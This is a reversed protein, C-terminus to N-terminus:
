IGSCDPLEGTAIVIYARYPIGRVTLLALTLLSGISIVWLRGDTLAASSPGPTYSGDEAFTGDNLVIDATLTACADLKQTRGNEGNVIDRFRKLGEATGIQYPDTETGSGTALAPNGTIGGSFTGGTITGNNIVEGNFTGSEITSGPTVTVKGYFVTGGSGTITCPGDNKDKDGLVVDGDVSGGNAYLKGYDSNNRVGTIYLGSGNAAACQSIQADGELTIQRM